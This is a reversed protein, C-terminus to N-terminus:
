GASFASYLDICTMFNLLKTSPIITQLISNNNIQNKKKKLVNLFHVVILEGAHKANSINQSRQGTCRESLSPFRSSVRKGPHM